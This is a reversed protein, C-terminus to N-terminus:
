IGGAESEDDRFPFLITNARVKQAQGSYVSWLIRWAMDLILLSNALSVSTM